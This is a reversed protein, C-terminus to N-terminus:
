ERFDGDFGLFGALLFVPYYTKKEVKSCWNWSSTLRGDICSGGDDGSGDFGHRFYDGLVRKRLLDKGGFEDNVYKRLAANTEFEVDIRELVQVLPNLMRSIQTYKDIFVLANPVDRDGLHVVSLGVWERKYRYGRKNEVDEYTSSLQRIESKTKSLIHSMFDSVRPAAQCRQMGQGTNCLRYGNRPSLLDREALIWAQFFNRLVNKWLILSQLVFNFQTPHSHSLCSGFRGSKIQLSEVAEEPEKTPDFNSRLYNILKVVPILNSRLFTSNDLVSNVILEILEASLDIEEVKEEEEEEMSEDSISAKDSKSEEEENDKEEGEMPEELDVKPEKRAERKLLVEKQFDESCYKAILEQLAENRIAKEKQIEESNTETENESEKLSSTTSGIPKTAAKFLPDKVMELADAAKLVSYVTKTPIMLEINGLERRVKPRHADMLVYLLKGYSTRMKDPNMLKYRRGIELCKAVFHQHDKLPQSAIKKQITTKYDNALGLGVIIQCLDELQELIRETKDYTTRVFYNNSSVDVVDTYESVDM